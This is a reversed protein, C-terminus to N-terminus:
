EVKINRVYSIFKSKTNDGDAMLWIAVVELPEQFHHSSLQWGSRGASSQVSVMTVRSNYPNDWREGVPHKANPLLYIMRDSPYKLLQDVQTIWSLFFPNPLSDETKLLLGLKFVADDGSRQQEHQSNEINPVGDSRWEFSVNSVKKINEFPLMLLSAGEDVEIRLQHHHYSYHNAKIRGFTIHEFVGKQLPIDASQPGAQPTVQVAINPEAPKIEALLNNMGLIILLIFCVLGSCAKKYSRSKM